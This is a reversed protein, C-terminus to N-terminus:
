KESKMKGHDLADRLMQMKLEDIAIRLDRVDDRTPAKSQNEAIIRLALDYGNLRNEVAQRDKIAYASVGSLVTVLVGTSFIALWKWSVSVRNDPTM